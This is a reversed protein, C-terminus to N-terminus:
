NACQRRVSPVSERNKGASLHRCLTRRSIDIGFCAKIQERIRDITYGAAKLDAAIKCLDDTMVRRGRM